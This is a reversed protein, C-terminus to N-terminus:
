PLLAELQKEFERAIHKGTQKTTVPNHAPEGYRGQFGLLRLRPEHNRLTMRARITRAGDHLRLMTYVLRKQPDSYSSLVSTREAATNFQAMGQFGPLRPENPSLYRAVWGAVDRHLTTGSQISQPAAFESREDDPFRVVMPVTLVPQTFAFGHGYLGGEYFAEGHDGTILILTNSPLDQVLDTILDDLFALSNKYRNLHPIRDPEELATVQTVNFKSKAVPLHREYSKPYRYEFHTSMLFALSFTPGSATSVTRRIQALATRDWDPWDGHADHHLFDVSSKSLFEERRLWVIPHGTMYHLQYGMSRLWSFLLPPIRADLTQHFVVNSRGYLLSFMGAESSYTGAEHQNFVMAHTKAWASLRPMNGDELADRRLSEVVIFVIHPRPGDAFQPPPPTWHKQLTAYHSKYIRQLESSLLSEPDTGTSQDTALRLDFPFSGYLREELSSGMFLRAALPLASAALLVLGLATATLQAITGQLRQHRGLRAAGVSAGFHIAAATLAALLFTLVSPGVWLLPNGAAVGGQPALLYPLLDKLHRGVSQYLSRDLLIVWFPLLLAVLALAQRWPARDRRLTTSALIVAPAVLLVTKSLSSFAVEVRTRTQEALELLHVFRIQDQHEWLFFYAYASCWSLVTALLFYFSPPASPRARQARLSGSPNTDLRDEPANM